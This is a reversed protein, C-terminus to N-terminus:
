ILYNHSAYRTHGVAPAVDVFMDRIIPKACHGAMKEEVGLEGLRELVVYLLPAHFFLSFLSASAM